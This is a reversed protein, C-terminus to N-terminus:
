RYPNTKQFHYAELIFILLGAWIFFFGFMKDQSFVEGFLLIGVLVNGTPPLYQLLSVVTLPVRCLGYAYGMQPIITVIGAGILWLNQGLSASMFASNGSILLYALYPWLLPMSILLEVCLGPMANVPVCKRMITFLASSFAITLGVWPLSGYWVVMGLVGVAATAIAVWQLRRPRERFLLFGFFVCLLPLIYHGLAADLIHGSCVAWVYFGWNFMHVISCGVMFKLNRRNRMIDRVEFLRGQGWLLAVILLFGWFSRHCVVELASVHTLQMWYIPLLAWIVSVCLLAAVGKQLEGEGTFHLGPTSSTPCSAQSVQKVPEQTM